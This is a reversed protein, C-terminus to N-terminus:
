KLTTLYAIVDDVDGPNTFGSFPMRTGKVKSQPDRLYERLTAEDWTLNARKMPNSYRFEEIAASKRGVVGKLTPGLADPKDTHCAACAEFLQKGKEADGAARVPISVTFACAFSVCAAAWWRMRM